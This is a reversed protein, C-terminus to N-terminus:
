RATLKDLVGRLKTNFEEPRELMLYHGVGDILVADFDAYKRNTEVSTRFGRPPHPVANVCRVPVRMASLAEQVDFNPFDRLLAVAAAQDAECAKAIVWEVLVPDADAPFMSRVAQDMTGEFDAEFQKAMEQAADEPYEFEADHLTDVAVVGVVRRPMRRAAELAVPGGMSHGILIVRDLGLKEVVARVDAGLGTITWVDREAGSAGHGPLDVAVVRYEDAFVDLQERWFSRDCSWCHLFVLTTEGKGRVDYAVCVGDPAHGRATVVRRSGSSSAQCGALLVAVVILICLRM